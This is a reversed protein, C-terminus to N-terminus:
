AFFQLTQILGVGSACIRGIRTKDPWDQEGEKDIGVLNFSTVFEITRDEAGKNELETWSRVVCVGDYFQMHAIACLEKEDQATIELKTGYQNKYLKHGVYKMDKGPSSGTKKNGHHDNQNGGSEQIEFLRYWKHKREPILSEDYDLASMHLLNIDGEDTIKILLNIGNENVCITKCQKSNAEM